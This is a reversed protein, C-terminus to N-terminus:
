YRFAHKFRFKILRACLSSTPSFRKGKLCSEVFHVFEKDRFRKSREWVIKPLPLAFFWRADVALVGLKLVSGERALEWGAQFHVCVLNLFENEALTVPQAILDIEPQFIRALEPQRYVDSWLERHHGTLTLFDGIRRARTDRRVAIATIILSGIIGLSQVLSFWNDNLWLLSDAV